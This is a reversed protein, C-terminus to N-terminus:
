QLSQAEALLRELLETVDLERAWHRLYDQDLSDFVTWAVTAADRFQRESEGKKCWELKSLILDEATVASVKADSILVPRRRQFEELSFPRRKKLILDTKVGLELDIVNFMSRRALADLAMTMDSYYDEGLGSIFQRLQTETPDIVIDVDQTPRFNGFSTTAMSGCVMYPVDAKELAETVKRLAAHIDLYGNM